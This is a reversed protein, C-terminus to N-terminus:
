NFGTIGINGNVTQLDILGAGAGLVGTLSVTTQVPNVFVLNSWAIMGNGVRANLVASTSVPISLALSGNVTSLRVEGGPPLTVTADVNGNTQDVSVPSAVDGVTVHGNVQHVEVALDDPVTITYEVLYQRGQPNAPQVTQVFVEDSLDTVAVSLQALGAQADTLLDAGVRLKADVVVMGGGPQGIVEIIGNVAEVRIKDHAVVPLQTSFTKEVFVNADVPWPWPWNAGGGIVVDSGCGTLLVLSAATAAVFSQWARRPM